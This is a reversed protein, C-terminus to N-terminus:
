NGSLLKRQELATLPGSKVAIEFVCPPVQNGNWSYAQVTQLTTVTTGTRMTTHGFGWGKGVGQFWVDGSRGTRLTHDYVGLVTYNTNKAASWAFRNDLNTTKDLDDKKIKVIIYDNANVCTLRLYQIDDPVKSLSMAFELKTRMDTNWNKPDPSRFIM